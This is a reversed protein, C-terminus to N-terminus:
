IPSSGSPSNKSLAKVGETIREIWKNKLKGERCCRDFNEVRNEPAVKSFVPGGWKEEDWELVAEAMLLIYLDKTADPTPTDMQNYEMGAFELLPTTLGIRVVGHSGCKVKGEEGDSMVELWDPKDPIVADVAAQVPDPKTSKNIVPGDQEETGM